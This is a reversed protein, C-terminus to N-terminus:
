AAPAPEDTDADDESADESAVADRIRDFFAEQRARDRPFAAKIQGAVAAYVDLFSEKADDRLARAQVTAVRAAARADLAAQYDAQIADIRARQVDREAWSSTAAIRASLVVLAAVESPGVPKVIPTVGEPFVSSAVGADACARQVSKVIEDARVDVLRVRGRPEVLALIAAEYARQSAVLTALSASVTTALSELHARVEPAPQFVSAYNRLTAALYATLAECRAVPTNRTPLQM